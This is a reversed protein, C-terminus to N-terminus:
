QALKAINKCKQYAKLDLLKFREEKQLLDQSLDKRLKVIEEQTLRTFPNKELIDLLSIILSSGLMMNDIIIQNKMGERM